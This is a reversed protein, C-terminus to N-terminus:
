EPDVVTEEHVADSLGLEENVLDVSRRVAGVKSLYGAGVATKAAVAPAGRLVTPGLQAVADDGVSVVWGPPDYRYSALRPRFGGDREHERGREHEVLRTVNAAAVPAQRIATQASAPTSSGDADIARVADGAGFAREGLRLHRNVVPRDGALAEDGRIGGTWAFGDYTLTGADAEVVAEDAREVRWGTRVDVGAAELAARVASQFRSAFSPAVTDAMEVVVVERDLDREEALTALEGALQVGSLGAGGVVFREGPALGLFTERIAAADAISKLPTAAERVGPLGYFATKSGLTVVGYDFSLRAPVGVGDGDGSPEGAGGLPDADAVDTDDAGATPDLEAVGRDPDVGTVRARRVTVRDLLDAADLEIADAVSPRRVVRHIEHQVLHRGDEDVLVIEVDGPLQSELERAAAVGAYGAGLVAVRM